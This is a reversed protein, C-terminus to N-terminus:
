AHAHVRVRGHVCVCARVRARVCVCLEGASEVSVPCRVSRKAAWIASLMGIILQM